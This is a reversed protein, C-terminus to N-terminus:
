QQAEQATKEQASIRLQVYDINAGLHEDASNYLEACTAIDDASMGSYLRPASAAAIGGSTGYYFSTRHDDKVSGDDNVSYIWSQIANYDGVKDDKFLNKYYLADGTLVFNQLYEPWVWYLNVEVPRTTETSGKECFEDKSIYFSSDVRNSYFGNADMNRFFLLHSKFLNLLTEGDTGDAKNTNLVRSLDIQIGQLDKTLPEVTFKLVGRAGPYIGDYTYNNLNSDATVTMSDQLNFVTDYVGVRSGAVGEGEATLTYRAGKASISSGTASVSSNAAFWALCAFIIVIAALVFLGSVLFDKWFDKLTRVHEDATQRYQEAATLPAKNGM